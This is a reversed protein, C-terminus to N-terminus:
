RVYRWAELVVRGFRRRACLYTEGDVDYAPDGTIASGLVDAVRALEAGTHCQVTLDLPRSRRCGPGWIMPVPLDASWNEALWVMVTSMDDQLELLDGMFEDLEDAQGVAVEPHEIGAAVAAVDDDYWESQWGCTCEARFDIGDTVTTVQHVLVAPTTDPEMPEDGMSPNSLVPASPESALGRATSDQDSV